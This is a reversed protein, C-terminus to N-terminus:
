TCKLAIAAMRHLNTVLWVWKRFFGEITVARPWHDGRRLLFLAESDSISAWGTGVLSKRYSHGSAAISNAGM